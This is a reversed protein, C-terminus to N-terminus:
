NYDNIEYKGILWTTFYNCVSRFLVGIFSVIKQLGNILITEMTAPSQQTGILVLM